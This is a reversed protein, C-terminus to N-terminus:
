STLLSRLVWQQAPLKAKITLVLVNYKQDMDTVIFVCVLNGFLFLKTVFKPVIYKVLYPSGRPSRSPHSKSTQEKLTEKKDEKWMKNSRWYFLHLRYLSMHITWQSNAPVGGFGDRESRRFVPQLCGSCGAGPLWWGIKGWQKNALAM